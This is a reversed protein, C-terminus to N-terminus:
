KGLLDEIRQLISQKQNSFEEFNSRVEQILDESAHKMFNENSLKQQLKELEKEIKQIRQKKNQIESDIDLLNKSFFVTTSSDVVTAILSSDPQDEYFVEEIKALDSITHINSEVTSKFSDDNTQIGVRIGSPKSLHFEAKTNRIVRILEQIKQVGTSAEDLINEPLSIASPWKSYMISSNANEEMLLWLAETVFPTIPHMMQLSKSFIVRLLTPNPNTKSVEIYWDCFDHWFFAYVSQAADNFSYTEISNKVSKVTENYRHIIWQDWISLNISDITESSLRNTNDLVYHGANWIKNVFNRSAKNKQIDFRIDQGASNSYSTVTYRLADAGYEQILSTPDVANSSSKSMKKGQSDLILGHYYVKEFPIANVFYLSSFIMRSVWFFIIDFGTVMLSSPYYRHLMETDEPWGMCAFPWLASGFWTDLVDEEQRLNYSTCEPCNKPTTESVIMEGCDDCYWVPIRIGWWIQRSICWDMINEMWDQYVKQWRNPIFQIDGQQVTKLGKEALSKTRLYWQDSIVPELIHKCRDCHGVSHYFPEVQILYGQEQLDNKIKERAEQLSLGKYEGANDNMEKGHDIVNVFDLNHKKGLNFDNPDHSPTVKLAGTGFEKDVYEDTIIPIRRNVLPVIAFKGHYKKYRPDDPHVAIATDGLMTEVRTTAITIYETSNEIYYKITVLEGKVSQHDVEIDSLATKCRPCYQVMRKGRYILGQEFYTVFAKIVAKEYNEDKTFRLKTWDASTGLLKMQEIIKNGYVSKWEWVKEIFAERGIDEKLIGQKKLFAEVKNDTALGAQDTGPFWCVSYGNMRKFRCIIDPLTLDLAHGLHLAGTINPPPMTISFVHDSTTDTPQFLHNSEWYEYIQPEIEDAPYAGKTYKLM